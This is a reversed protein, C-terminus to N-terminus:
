SIIYEAYGKSKRILLEHIEKIEELLHSKERNFNEIVRDALEVKKSEPLQNAIRKRVLTETSSDRKAARKIREEEPASVVILYDFNNHKNQEIVIASEFLVYPFHEYDFCFSRFDEMLAPTILKSLDQLLKPDDFVLKRVTPKDFKDDIYISDGFLCKISAKLKPSNNELWAAREDSLYIPVGLDHFLNCITTKGSGIGGTIAVKIM